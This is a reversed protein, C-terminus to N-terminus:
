AALVSFAGSQRVPQGYAGGGAYTAKERTVPVVIELARDVYAMQRLLAERLTAVSSALAKVRLARLPLALQDRGVGDAMHVLEVALRQLIAGGAQVAVPNGTMLSVGLEKLQSELLSLQTDISPHSM